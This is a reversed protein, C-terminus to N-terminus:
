AIGWIVDLVFNLSTLCPLCFVNKYELINKCGQSLLYLMSEWLFSLSLDKELSVM